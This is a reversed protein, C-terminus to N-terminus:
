FAKYNKSNNAKNIKSFFVYICKINTKLFSLFILLDFSLLVSLFFSPYFSLFLSLLVAQCGSLRFSLCVFMFVFLCFVSLLVLLHVSLSFSWWVSSFGYLCLTSPSSLPLIKTEKYAIMFVFHPIDKLQPYILAMASSYFLRIKAM